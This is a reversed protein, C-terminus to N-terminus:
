TCLTGAAVTTQYCNLQLTSRPRVSISQNLLFTTAGMITTGMFSAVAPSYNMCTRAIVVDNGATMLTAMSTTAPIAGCSPGVGNNTSWIKTITGSVNRYGFLEIRVENAATPAMIMDTAKYSDTIYSKLVSSRQQTILDATTAAAATIKRNLSIAVTVDVLGFYLLLMFPMIFAMEIAAVGKDNKLFSKRPFTMTKM